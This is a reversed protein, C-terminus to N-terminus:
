RRQMRALLQLQLPPSCCTHTGSAPATCCCCCCRRRCRRPLPHCTIAPAVPLSRTHRPLSVLWPQVSGFFQVSQLLFQRSDRKTTSMHPAPLTNHLCNPSVTGNHKLVSFHRIYQALAACSSLTTTVHSEAVGQHHLLFQLILLKKIKTSAQFSPDSYQGLISGIIVM